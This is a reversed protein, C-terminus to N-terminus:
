KGNFDRNIDDIVRIEDGFSIAVIEIEDDVICDGFDAALEVAMAFFEFNFM